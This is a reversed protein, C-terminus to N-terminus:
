LGVGVKRSGLTSPLSNAIITYTTLSTTEYVPSAPTVNFTCWQFLGGTVSIDAVFNSLYDALDAEFAATLIGDVIKDDALGPIFTRGQRRASATVIRGLGAVQHPNYDVVSTGVMLTGAISGIGDFRHLTFDWLRAEILSVSFEDNLGAEVESVAVQQQSLIGALVDDSDAGVGSVMELHWVNLAKSALPCDWTQIIQLVDGQTLTTM